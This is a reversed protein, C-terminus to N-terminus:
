SRYLRAVRGQWLVILPVAILELALGLCHGASPVGAQLLSLLRSLGGVVIVAGLARFATRHTEIRPISALFVIGIGLLLGSLYRYHSDLDVPLPATVGKLVTASRVISAVGMSLPVLCLVATAGQLLRREAAIRM